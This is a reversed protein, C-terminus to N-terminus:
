GRASSMLDDMARSCGRPEAGETRGILRVRGGEVSGVDETLVHCVSGVNALDFFALLGPRGEGLPELTVPDLARVRLWPAPVHVGAGALGESLVPEYLQSLLETMGYENVIRERPVGTGEALLRHFDERPMERARGKFGGTEMIRSGPPLPGLGGPAGGSAGELAHVFAFATGLLLVPEDAARAEGLARDLGGRDLAGEGDVLWDVRSAWRAAAAGVMHSLSSAPAEEPSPVLSVFRIREVDPVVHARFTPLLSAHYLALSRVFHRGRRTESRTGSTLFVAEAEAPDGAYLDLARFGTVPVAPVEDWRSVTDPTRGRARCFAGYVANRAYQSRFAELALRGFDEDDWRGCAGAAMRERLERAVGGFGSETSM